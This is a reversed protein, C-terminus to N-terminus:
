RRRKSKGIAPLANIKETHSPVKTKNADHRKKNELYLGAKNVYYQLTFSSNTDSTNCNTDSQNQETLPEWEEQIWSNTSKQIYRYEEHDDSATTSPSIRLLARNKSPATRPREERKKVSSIETKDGDILNQFAHGSCGSFLPILLTSLFLFLFYYLSKM